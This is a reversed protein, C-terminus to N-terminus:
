FIGRTGNVLFKMMDALEANKRMKAIVEDPTAEGNTLEQIAAELEEVRRGLAAIELDKQANERQSAAFKDMWKHVEGQLKSRERDWALDKATKVYAM